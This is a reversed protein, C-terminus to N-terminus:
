ANLLKHAEEQAFQNTYLNFYIGKQKMLEKHSGLEAIKGGEIVLIKDCSRITSLRHAVIFSTRGKLITFIAEQITRETETDINSTAEDLIFIQPNKIIARAFSILQKEGSSLRNGGEGVDTDFGKELKMIFNYANVTKAVEIIEGDTADLKGYRINEKITGSFLHPNQLVYGINSHLWLQSREKYDKGDILIKGSVPEYFRCLLNVITSKGAGTAGVLAIREGAKVKLSFDSLVPEGTKYSFSVNEFEINGDVKEWNELKPHFATGYKEIVEKTDKIEEETDVLSITREAAAQASQMETMVAAVQRIEEFIQAIYNIFVSLTGFTILNKALQAESASIVLAVAITGLFTVTPLYIASLRIARIHAKKMGTSLEDFEEFNKRERVLTKTTRAGNIGENFAGTIKSNLKRVERQSFLMKKQFIISVVWFVPILACSVLAMKIDLIFMNVIIFIIILFNFSIDLFSWAVVDGIRQADSTLRAMIWGVPTTDYYSFSLKQLKSFGAMRIDHIVTTEIVAALQMSKYFTWGIFLALVVFAIALKSIGEFTGTQAFNDIAFKYLLPVIAVGIAALGNIIMFFITDKKCGKLFRLSRIWLKIDFKNSYDVEEFQNM